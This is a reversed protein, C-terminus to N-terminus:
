NELGLRKLSNAAKQYNQASAREYWKIAELLNAKVGKGEEYCLGLYYQAEANDCGNISAFYPSNDSTKYCNKRYYKVAEEYDQEVGEGKYYCRGICNYAVPYG